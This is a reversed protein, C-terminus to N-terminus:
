KKLKNESNKEPDSGRYKKVFPMHLEEVARIRIDTAEEETNFTGLYIREGKFGIHASYRGNKTIHVGCIGSKSEPRAPKQGLREICTGEVRHLREGVTKMAEKKRCGCSIQRGHVLINESVEVRNGCQCECEWIVSGQKTRKETPSKVTLLGKQYGYLSVRNYNKQCGCSTKKRRNIDGTDMWIEGGCECTLHWMKKGGTDKKDALADVTLMGLKRGILNQNHKKYGNVCGCSILTRRKLKKSSAYVVNGCVCECKWVIYGSEREETPELLTLNEIKEGSKLERTGM